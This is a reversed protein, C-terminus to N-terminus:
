ATQYPDPFCALSLISTLPLNIEPDHNNPSPATVVQLNLIAPTHSLFCVLNSDFSFSTTLSTLNQYYAESDFIWIADPHLFLTLSTLETM